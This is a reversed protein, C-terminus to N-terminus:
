SWVGIVSVASIFFIIAALHDSVTKTIWFSLFLILVAAAEMPGPRPLDPASVLLIIATLAGILATARGLKESASRESWRTHSDTGVVIQRAPGITSDASEVGAIPRGVDM